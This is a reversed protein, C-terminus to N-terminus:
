LQRARSGSSPMKPAGFSLTQLDCSSVITPGISTETPPFEVSESYSSKPILKWSEVVTPAYVEETTSDPSHDSMHTVCFTGFGLAGVQDMSPRQKRFGLPLIIAAVYWHLNGRALGGKLELSLNTPEM